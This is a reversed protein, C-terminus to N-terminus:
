ENHEGSIIFPESKGNRHFKKKFELREERTENIKNIENGYQGRIANIIRKGKPHHLLYNKVKGRYKRYYDTKGKEHSIKPTRHTGKEKTTIYGPDLYSQPRHARSDFEWRALGAHILEANGKGALLLLDRVKNATRGLGVVDDISAILEANRFAKNKELYDSIKENFESQYETPKGEMKNTNVLLIPPVNKAGSTKLIQRLLNSALVGSSIPGLIISQPHEAIKEIVTKDPKVKEGKKWHYKPKSTLIKAMRQIHQPHFLALTRIKEWKEEEAEQRSLGYVNQFTTGIRKCENEADKPNEYEAFKDQWYEYFGRQKKDPESYSDNFAGSFEDPEKYLYIRKLYELEEGISEPKVPRYKPRKYQGIEMVYRNGTPEEYNPM